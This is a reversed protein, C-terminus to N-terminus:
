KRNNIDNALKNTPTLLCNKIEHFFNNLFILFYVFITAMM